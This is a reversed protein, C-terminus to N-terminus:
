EIWENVWDFRWQNRHLKWLGFYCVIVTTTSYLSDAFDIPFSLTLSSCERQWKGAAGECCVFGAHFKHAVANTSMFRFRGLSLGIEYKKKDKRAAKNILKRQAMLKTPRALTDSCKKKKEKTPEAYKRRFFLEFITQTMWLSISARERSQFLYQQSFRLTIGSKNKRLNEM